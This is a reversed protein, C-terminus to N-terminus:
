YTSPYPDSQVDNDTGYTQGFSEMHFGGTNLAKSTIDATLSNVAGLVNQKNIKSM